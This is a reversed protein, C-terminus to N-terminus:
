NRFPSAPLGTTNFLNPVADNRWGFRVFKPKRVKKSLIIVKDGQIV